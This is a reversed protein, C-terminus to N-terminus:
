LAIAIIKKCCSGSIEKISCGLCFINEQNYKINRYNGLYKIIGLLVEPPLDLLFGPMAETTTNM